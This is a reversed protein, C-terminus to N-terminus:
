AVGAPPGVWCSSLCRGIPRCRDGGPTPSLARSGTRGCLSFSPRYTPGRVLLHEQPVHTRHPAHEIRFQKRQQTTLEPKDLVEVPTTQEITPTNVRISLM